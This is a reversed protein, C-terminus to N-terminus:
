ALTSEMFLLQTYSCSSMCMYGTRLLLISLLSIYRQFLAFILGTIIISQHYGLDIAIEAPMWSRFLLEEVLVVFTAATFGRIILLLFQGCGKLWKMADFSHPFYPPRSLFAAGSIANIFQILLVVTIGGAFAKLFEQIQL